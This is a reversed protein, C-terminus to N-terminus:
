GSTTHPPTRAKLFARMFFGAQQPDYAFDQGVPCAHRALCGRALCSSQGQGRLHSACAATDYGQAPFAGQASFAGVPCTTLCPKAACSECPHLSAAQPPIDLEVPFLLAARYAHWLGYQPHINLGLPSVHGAGGRRAWTLIPAYPKTFPFVPEAGLDTALQGVAKVTWDDILEDASEREGAFRRFMAPGANGVLIVFRTRPPVGDEPKPAFWGLPTFSARYIASLFPHQM